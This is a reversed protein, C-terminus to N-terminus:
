ASAPAAGRLMATALEARSQYGARQFFRTLRGEVSKASTGLVVGIQQNTLGDTILTALLRENEALTASRGAVAINRARMLLRLRARPILADLEGFTRYAERLLRPDGLGSEAVVLATRALEVKRRRSRSLEVAERAAVPDREVLVRALLHNRRAAPTGLREAIRKLRAACKRGAAANGHRSEWVALRLWLEDTGVVIGDAGARALGQEILTRSLDHVGLTSELDAAPAALLHPLLLHQSRAEDLVARASNLQGRATLITVAERYMPTRGPARGHVTAAAMTSRATDLAEDWQEHAGPDGLEAAGRLHLANTVLQKVPGAASSADDETQEQGSAVGLMSAAVRGIAQGFAATARSESRWQESEAALQEHAEQWRDLLCLAAARTVIRSAAGGPISRWGERVFDQLATADGHEALGAVYVLQLQQEAIPSLAHPLTRLALAASEFASGFRQQVACSVAHRHLAVARRAPDTTLKTAALLWRVEHNEHADSASHELLQAAAREPDVLRGADVLREPLYGPDACPAGNWLARVALLGIRRREFPGACSALVTALMPVRFRWSNPQPGRLLVDAEALARLIERVEDEGRNVCDAILSPAAEGLPHLVALSKLVARAPSKPECLDTFLPHTNSLHPARDRVLHVRRDVVRLCDSALYGEVAAEIVAPLGRCSNRLAAAMGPAPVANLLEALVQEVEAEGLPRLREEHVLGNGALRDLGARDAAGSRAACVLTIRTGALANLFATISGASEPNIRHADDLFVVLRDPQGALAALLRRFSATAFDGRAPPAGLEDALRAALHAADCERRPIPVNVTTTREDTLRLRAQALATSRGIGAPGTVVILPVDPRHLCVDVIRDVVEGRVVSRASPGRERATNGRPPTRQLAADPLTLHDPAAPQHTPRHTFM